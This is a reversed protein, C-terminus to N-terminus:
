AIQALTPQSQKWEPLGFKSPGFKAVRPEKAKAIHRILSSELSARNVQVGRVGSLQEALDKVHLVQGIKSFLGVSDDIYSHSEPQQKSAPAINARQGELLALVRRIGSAAEELVTKQSEIEALADRLKTTNM